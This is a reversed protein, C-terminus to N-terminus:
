ILLLNNNSHSNRPLPLLPIRPLVHESSSHKGQRHPKRPFDHMTIASRGSSHLVNAVFLNFNSPRGTATHEDHRCGFDDTGM